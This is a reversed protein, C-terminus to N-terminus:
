NSGLNSPILRKANKHQSSAPANNHRILRDLLMKQKKARTIALHSIRFESEAEHDTFSVSTYM